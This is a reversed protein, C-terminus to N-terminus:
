ITRGEKKVPRVAALADRLQVLESEMGGTDVQLIEGEGLQPLLTELDKIDRESMIGEGAPTGPPEHIEFGQGTELASVSLLLLRALAQLAAGSPRSVDKEWESVLTQASGLPLPAYVRRHAAAGKGKRFAHPKAPDAQPRAGAVRPPGSRRQSGDNGTSQKIRNM